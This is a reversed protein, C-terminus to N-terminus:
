LLTNRSIIFINFLLSDYIKYILTELRSTTIFTKRFFTTAIKKETTSICAIFLSFQLFIPLSTTVYKIGIKTFTKCFTLVVTSQFYKMGINGLNILM